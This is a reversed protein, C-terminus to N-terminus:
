VKQVELVISCQNLEKSLSAQENVMTSSSVHHHQQEEILRFNFTLILLLTFNHTEYNRSHEKFVHRKSAAHDSNVRTM